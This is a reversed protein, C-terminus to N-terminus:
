DTFVKPVLEPCEEALAAKFWHAAYDRAGKPPCNREYDLVSEAYGARAYVNYVASPLGYCNHPYARATESEQTFRLMPVILQEVAEAIRTEIQTQATQIQLALLFRDRELRGLYFPDAWVRENLNPASDPQVKEYCLVLAGTPNLDCYVRMDFLQGYLVCLMASAHETRLTM